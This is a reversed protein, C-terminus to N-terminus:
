GTLIATHSAFRGILILSQKDGTHPNRPERRELLRLGFRPFLAEWSNTTRFYWPAPQSFDDSFGAWSGERWGDKYPLEGCATEPHLTQVIFHGGPKLLIPLADFVTETSQKGLLAFNSVACDFRQGFDTTALNEYACHQFDGGAQRAVDLLEPIADVGLCQTGFQALSRCLWGEGCGIDILNLPKCDRVAEIIAQNTITERSAVQKGAIAKAWPRANAYWSEVIRNEQDADKNM